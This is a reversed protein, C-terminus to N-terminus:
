SVGDKLLRTTAPTGAQDRTKKTKIGENTRLTWPIGIYINPVLPRDASRVSLGASDRALRTLGDREVVTANALQKRLRDRSVGPITLEATAQQFRAALGTVESTVSM